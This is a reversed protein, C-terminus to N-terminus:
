FRCSDGKRFVVLKNGLGSTCVRVVPNMEPTIRTPCPVNIVRTFSGSKGNWELLRDGSAPQFAFVADTTLDAIFESLEGDSALSLPLTVFISRDEGLSLAYTREDVLTAPPRPDEDVVPCDTQCGRVIGSNTQVFRRDSAGDVVLVTGDKGCRVSHVDVFRGVPPFYTVQELLRRAGEDSSVTTNPSSIVNDWGIDVNPVLSIGGFVIGSLWLAAAAFGLLRYALYPMRALVDPSHLQAATPAYDKPGQEFISANRRDLRATGKTELHTNLLRVSGRAEPIQTAFVSPRAPGASTLQGESRSRVLGSPRAPRASASGTGPSSDTAAPPAGSGSSSDGQKSSSVEVKKQVLSQYLVDAKRLSVAAPVMKDIPPQERDAQSANSKLSAESALGSARQSSDEKQMGLVDIYNVTTFRAPLGNTLDLGLYVLYSWSLFHCLYSGLAIYQGVRAGQQNNGGASLVMQVYAAISGLLPALSHALLFLVAEKKSLLLNIHAHICAFVIPILVFSVAGWQADYLTFYALGTYTVVNLIQNCGVVMCVRCYADLSMWHKQLRAFMYFHGLYYNYGEQILPDQTTPPDSSAGPKAGVVVGKQTKLKDAFIPVRFQHNVPAAEFDELRPAAADIQEPGPIPLRLWQTLLRTSFMQAIVSAHVAFWVSLFLFVIATSLSMAWSWYLWSPIDSPVKGEYYFGLSFGLALTNILYYNNMKGVVLGFLDRIDDRYLKVQEIRMKQLHYLREQDLSKNFSYSQRNYMFLGKIGSILALTELVPM